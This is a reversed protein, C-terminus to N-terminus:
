LARWLISHKRTCWENTTASKHALVLDILPWRYVEMCLRACVTSWEWSLQISCCSSRIINLEGSRHTQQVVERTVCGFVICSCLRIMVPWCQLKRMSESGCAWSSNPCGKLNISKGNLKKSKNEKHITHMVDTIYGTLQCHKWILCPTSM